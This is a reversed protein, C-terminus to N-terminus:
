SLVNIRWLLIRAQTSELEAFLEESDLDFDKKITTNDKQLDILATCILAQHQTFNSDSHRKLNCRKMKAKCGVEAFPCPVMANPCVSFHKQLQNRKITHKTCKNPCTVPYNPCEPIHHQEIFIFVDKHSCHPCIFPRYDCKKNAHTKIEHRPFTMDCNNNPCSVVVHKCQGNQQGVSMHTNLNGLEGTWECGQSRLPCYIQAENIERKIHKDTIGKIPCAKCLPCVNRQRKVNNICRDCFHNGCCETLFPDKLLELCIPCSWHKSPGDLFEIESNQIYTSDAAM